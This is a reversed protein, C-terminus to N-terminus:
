SNPFRTNATLYSLKGKKDRYTYARPPSVSWKQDDPLTNNLRDWNRNVRNVGRMVARESGLDGSQNSKAAKKKALKNIPDSKARDDAM